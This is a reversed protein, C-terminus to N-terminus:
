LDAVQKSCLQEHNPVCNSFQAARAKSRDTPGISYADVFAKPFPPFDRKQATGHTIQTRGLCHFSRM